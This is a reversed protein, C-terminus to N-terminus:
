KLRALDARLAALANTLRTRNGADLSDVKALEVELGKVKAELSKRVAKADVTASAVAAMDRKWVSADAVHLTERAKPDALDDPWVFPPSPAVKTVAREDIKMIERKCDEVIALQEAIKALKEKFVKDDM